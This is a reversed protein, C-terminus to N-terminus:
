KDVTRVEMEEIEHFDEDQSLISAGNSLCIGAITLDLENIGPYKQRLEAFKEASERDAELEDMIDLLKRVQKEGKETNSAIRTGKYLECQVPFCTALNGHEELKEAEIKGRLLDIFVSTDVLIM